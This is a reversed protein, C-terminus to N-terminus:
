LDAHLDIVANFGPANAVKFPGPRMTLTHRYVQGHRTYHRAGTVPDTSDACVSQGTPSVLQNRNCQAIALGPEPFRVHRRILAVAGQDSRKGGIGQPLVFYLAAEIYLHILLNILLCKARPLACPRDLVGRVARSILGFELVVMGTGPAQAMLLWQLPSARAQQPPQTMHSFAKIVGGEPPDTIDAPYGVVCQAFRM